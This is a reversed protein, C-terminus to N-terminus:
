NLLNDAELFVMAVEGKRRKAASEQVIVATSDVVIDTDVAGPMMEQFSRKAFMQVVIHVFTVVDVNYMLELCLDSHLLMNTCGVASPGPQTQGSYAKQLM